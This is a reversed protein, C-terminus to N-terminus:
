KKNESVPPSEAAPAGAQGKTSSNVSAIDAEWTTLQVNGEAAKATGPTTGLLSAVYASVM